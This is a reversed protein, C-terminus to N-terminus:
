EAARGDTQLPATREVAGALFLANALFKETGYWVGRFVPDDILAVALGAGVREARLAPSGAIRDVRDRAAFGSVLPEDTYRVPAAFPDEGEPLVTTSNRFVALEDRPFGFCLPHTRDLRVRFITGAISERAALERYDGYALPGREDEAEGDEEMEDDDESDAKGGAKSEDEPEPDSVGAIELAAAASGRLGVLIGGDRVWRRLAARDSEDLRSAAGSVLFLHTTRPLDLAGFDRHDVMVLPVGFRLDLAHWIEGAEYASCGSGVLLAPRPAELPGLNPSGLDIGGPTLGSQLPVIEVGHEAARGLAVSLEEASLDQFGRTVVLTGPDFARTEDDGESSAGIVAEFARTGLRVRVGSRQLEALAAPAGAHQWSFAWGVSNRGSEDAAALIEGAPFSGLPVLAEGQVRSAEGSELERWAVGFSLPLCWSSVDYFTNDEWDTRLEFVARVLRQQAQALSVVFVESDGFGEWEGDAGRFVEIGHRALLDALRLAREPDSPAAFAYGDLDGASGETKASGFFDAQYEVLAERLEGAAWLTSLSTTVQNRITFPFSLDGNVSEQLHGRSSAQEFLIGVAGQLDPYTSGKGYYFDDFSEETYYLSGLEDLSRAHYGAVQRTLDLNKEPTIPNQRSPIGPQFFYTANTGMEHYDTVVNPMWAHFRELRGRSEPHTLLLWDRNLDFWYHNTRGNPWGERHERHASDSVLHRGRHRNAWGAFRDLGDPNLCPDILVVHDELMEVVSEDRAAALHHAVVLAASAGSSENGHVSYGMWVVSPLDLRAEGGLIAARRETRISELNEHNAESTIALLLLPRQEHTHGYVELSVRPSAEALEEMYRVLQDHRLHWEGVPYGLTQEPRPIQPDHDAPVPLLSFGDSPPVTQSPVPESPDAEAPATQSAAGDVQPAAASEGALPLCAFLLGLFFPRSLTLTQM